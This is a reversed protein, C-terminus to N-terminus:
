EDLIKSTRMKALLSAYSTQLAEFAGKLENFSQITPAQGISVGDVILNLSDSNVLETVVFEEAVVQKFTGYDDTTGEPVIIDEFFGQLAARDQWAINEDTFETFNLSAGPTM